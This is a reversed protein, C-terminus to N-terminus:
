IKTKREDKVCQNSSLIDLIIWFGMFIYIFFGKSLGNSVIAEEAEYVGDLNIYFCSAIFVLIFNVIVEVLSTISFVLYMDYTTDKVASLYFTIKLFFEILFLLILIFFCILFVHMLLLDFISLIFDFHESNILPAYYNISDHSYVLGKVSYILCIIDIATLVLLIIVSNFKVFSKM